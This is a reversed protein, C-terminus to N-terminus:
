TGVWRFLHNDDTYMGGKANRHIKIHTSCYLKTLKRESILYSMKLCLEQTHATVAKQDKTKSSFPFVPYFTVLFDSKLWYFGDSLLRSSWSLHTGTVVAHRTRLNRISSRGGIHLTVAFINFLCDRVASLPHDELKPTPRPALLEEGYFYIKNRFTWVSLRPGPAWSPCTAPVQSHPLSGEPQM